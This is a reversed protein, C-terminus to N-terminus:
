RSVVRVIDQNTARNLWKSAMQADKKVGYGNNYMVALNQKAIISGEESAKEFFLIASKFDKREIADMGETLNNAQLSVFMALLLSVKKM